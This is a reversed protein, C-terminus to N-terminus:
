CSGASFYLFLEDLNDGLGPCKQFNFHTSNMSVSICSTYVLIIGPLNPGKTVRALLVWLDWELILESILTATLCSTGGEM